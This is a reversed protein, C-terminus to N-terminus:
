ELYKQLIAVCSSPLHDTYSSDANAQLDIIKEFTSRFAPQTTNDLTNYLSDAFAAEYAEPSAKTRSVVEEHYKELLAQIKVMRQRLYTYQLDFVDLLMSKFYDSFSKDPEPKFAPSSEFKLLRPHLDKNLVFDAAFLEFVSEGPYLQAKTALISHIVQARMDSIM